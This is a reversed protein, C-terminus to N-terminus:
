GCCFCTRGESPLVVGGHVLSGVRRPANSYGASKPLKQLSAEINPHFLCALACESPISSVAAAISSEVTARKAAMPKAGLTFSFTWCCFAAVLSPVCRCCTLVVSRLITLSGSLVCCCCTTAHEVGHLYRRSCTGEGVWCRMWGWGDVGGM